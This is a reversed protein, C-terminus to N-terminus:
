GKPKFPFEIRKGTLSSEYSALLMEIVDRGEQATAVPERKGQFFDVIPRALARLRDAHSAPSPIGSDIWETQGNLLWCLSPGGGRKPTSSSVADGYFQLLTGKDGHVETTTEGANATFSCYVEVIKGDQTRFVAVGNDDPIIPNLLTDIEAIVSRPKGFLWLVLDFPHAADDMWIGRNLEPKVHWTKDFDPWIHTALCHKRRFMVVKGLTGDEMVQKIRQNQPDMRMQWAMTFPVKNKEVAAIIRDCQELTLAMPKQLAIAKGAEAAAVCLDAHRSTEAAIIVADVEKNALVEELNTSIGCGFQAANRAGRESDHDWSTVVRADEMKGIEDAYLNVHGHAWGLVAIGLSM